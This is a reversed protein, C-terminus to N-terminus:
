GRKRNLFYIRLNCVVFVFGYILDFLSTKKILNIIVVFLLVVFYMFIVVKSQIIRQM